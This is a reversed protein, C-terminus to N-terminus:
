RQTVPDWSQYAKQTLTYGIFICSNSKRNLKRREADPVHVYAISGFVRLQLCENKSLALGRAPHSAVEQRSRPESTPLNSERILKATGSTVPDTFSPECDYLCSRAKETM